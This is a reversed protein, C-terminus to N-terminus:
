RALYVMNASFTGSVAETCSFLAKVFRKSNPLPIIRVIKEGSGAKCGTAPITMGTDASISVGLSGLHNGVSVAGGNGLTASTTLAQKTALAEGYTKLATQYM